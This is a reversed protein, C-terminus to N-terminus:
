EEGEAVCVEATFELFVLTGLQARARRARRDALLTAFSKKGHHIKKGKVGGGSM